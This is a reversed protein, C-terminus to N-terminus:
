NGNPLPPLAQALGAMVLVFAAAVRALRHWYARRWAHTWAISAEAVPRIQRRETSPLLAAKRLAISASHLTYVPARLLHVEVEYIQEERWQAARKQLRRSLFEGPVDRHTLRRRLRLRRWHGAVDALAEPYVEDAHQPGGTLRAAERQLDDLHVYVFDVFEPPPEDDMPPVLYVGNM